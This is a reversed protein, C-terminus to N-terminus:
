ETSATQPLRKLMCRARGKWASQKRAIASPSADIDMILAQLQERAEDPRGDDAYLCALLHLAEPHRWRKIHKELHTRSEDSRHLAHLTKAYMLSVDGFKYDPDIALLRSLSDFAAEFQRSRFQGCGAGWLAQPNSPDKQLAQVYANLSEGWRGTERLADGLEIFQYPNGIQQAAIELRHIERRRTVQRLLGPARVNAGPLWRAFFYIFAGIPHFILIIWMWIFREPDNKLCWVAMWILFVLYPLRGWAYLLQWLGIGPEPELFPVDPPPADSIQALLLM